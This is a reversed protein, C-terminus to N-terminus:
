GNLIHIAEGLAAKASEMLGEGLTPHPHITLSLDKLEAHMEIALAAESILDSAHAGAITVGLLEGTEADAVTKIFGDTENTTLARGIAAYPFRGVKVPGQAQHEQIGAVGVEPNTFVVAPVSRVDWSVQHGAIIEAVMEGEHTAKHALMPQGALDGIAFLGEVNTRRQADVKVFPGDLAVELAELGVGRTNPRRGVTVLVKDAAIREEGKAGEVRVIVGDGDPEWGLAKTSLLARVKAKKLNRAILKVVEPDFGPLLQDTAEVVTVKAGLAAYATGLELGIYGGGIVVLHGPVQDLALAKTSDLIPADDFSFGPIQIPSSGTALVVHEATLTREGEATRVQVTHPATLVAEGRLVEVGNGQLLTGVGRTLRQVVSGKWAQLAGMDVAATGGVVIGMKDAERVEHLRRGATILAKSPICGVNLCVGGLEGKEVILTKIGLQGLRIAAPYGGPGAGIVIAQYDYSSM